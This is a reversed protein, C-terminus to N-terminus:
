SLKFAGTGTAGKNIYMVLVLFGGMFLLIMSCIALVTAMIGANGFLATVAMCFGIFIAVAAFMLAM